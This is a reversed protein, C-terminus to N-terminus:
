GEDVEEDVELGHEACLAKFGGDFGQGVGEFKWETGARYLRVLIVATNTSAEESLDFKYLENNSTADILRAYAGDVMGFNQLRTRGAYVSATFVIKAIDAPVSSLDVKITEDDGEGQGDKNDGAYIVSNSPHTQFGEVYSVMDHPARIKGDATILFCAADLDFKKGDTRRPNWGMGIIINKLGPNDKTLSIKQGPAVKKTLSITATM